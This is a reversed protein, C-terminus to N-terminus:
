LNMKGGAAAATMKSAILEPLNIKIAEPIKLKEESRIFNEADKIVREFLAINQEFTQLYFSKFLQESPTNKYVLYAINSSKGIKSTRFVSDLLALIISSYKHEIIKNLIILYKDDKEIYDKFNLYEEKVVENVYNMALQIEVKDGIKRNLHASIIFAIEVLVEM